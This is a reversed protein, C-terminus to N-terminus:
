TLGIKNCNSHCNNNCCIDGLMTKQVEDLLDLSCWLFVICHPLHHHYQHLNLNNAERFFTGVLEQSIEPCILMKIAVPQNRFNGRYVRATGGVGLVTMMNLSLEHFDILLHEPVTEM